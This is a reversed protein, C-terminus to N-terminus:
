KILHRVIFSNLREHPETSEEDQLIEYFLM